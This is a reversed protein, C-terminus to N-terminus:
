VKFLKQRINTILYVPLNWIIYHMENSTKQKSLNDSPHISWGWWPSPSRNSWPCRCQLWSNYPCQSGVSTMQFRCWLPHTYDSSVLRSLFTTRWCWCPHDRKHYVWYYLLQEIDKTTHLDRNSDRGATIGLNCGFPIIQWVIRFFVLLLNKTM